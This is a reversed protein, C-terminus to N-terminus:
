YVFRASVGWGRPARASGVTVQADVLISATVAYSGGFGATPNRGLSGTDATNMRTGARVLARRAIKGEAGIAFDRVKGNLGATELLDLDAAIAWGDVPSIAVGARAQRALELPTTSGSAEFEPAMVNRITLGAKMRGATAMVGLDADFRNSAQGVLDASDGLIENRDGDPRLSSAAIGRVLKLTAGVAVGPVISQVLTAGVQHTVLSNVRVDGGGTVNRDGAAEATASLPQITTARLRYYSLSLAPMGLAFLVGSRSGARPGSAPNAEAASRDLVLSFYSGSAFGAPNWYAASADDAVAVFAGGMGAARTGVTDFTQGAAPTALLLGGLFVATLIGLMRNMANLKAYPHPFDPGGSFGLVRDPISKRPAIPFSRRAGLRIQRNSNSDFRGAPM